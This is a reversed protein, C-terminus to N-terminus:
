VLEKADPGADVEDIYAKVDENTLANLESFLVVDISQDRSFCAELLMPLNILISIALLSWFYLGGLETLFPLAIGCVKAPVSLTTLLAWANFFVSHTMVGYGGDASKLYGSVAINFAMILLFDALDMYILPSMAGAATAEGQLSRFLVPNNTMTLFSIVMSTTILVPLSFKNPEM